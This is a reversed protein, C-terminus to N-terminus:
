EGFFQVINGDPDVLGFTRRRSGEPRVLPFFVQLGRRQALAYLPDIDRVEFGIKLIGHVLGAEEPLKWEARSQADSFELLELLAGDRSLIMGAPVAGDGERRLEVVFGLYEVYWAAVRDLDSVSLAFFAREIEAASGAPHNGNSACGALALALILCATFLGHPKM